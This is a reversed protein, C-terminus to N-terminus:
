DCRYIVAPFWRQRDAVAGLPNYVEAGDLTKDALHIKPTSIFRYVIMNVCLLLQASVSEDCCVQKETERKMLM